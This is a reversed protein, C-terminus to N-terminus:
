DLQVRCSKGTLDGNVTFEITLHKVGAPPEPVFTWSGDWDTGTGAWQGGVCRYDTDHNDTIVPKVASLVVQGPMPPPSGAKGKGHLKQEADWAEFAELYALDRHQTELNRNAELGIRVGREGPKAGHHVPADSTLEVGALRVDVGENSAVILDGPAWVIVTM